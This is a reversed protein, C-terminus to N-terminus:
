KTMNHLHLACTRTKSSDPPARVKVMGNSRSPSVFECMAGEARGDSFIEKCRV